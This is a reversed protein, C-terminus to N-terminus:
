SDPALLTRAARGLAALAGPMDWGVPPRLGVANSVARVELFPLGARLCGLALAFGEMSEVALGDPAHRQRVERARSPCGSVGAVTVGAVAPWERPLRLGMATAAGAPDLSMRGFIPGDRSNAQAFGLGQPDLGAEGHLGYEPWAESTAVTLEGLPLRKPDFSGALGLNLVGDVGDRGLALGLSLAANLPGVGTVMALLGGRSGHGYPLRPRLLRGEEADHRHGAWALCAEIEMRTAAVLLVAM